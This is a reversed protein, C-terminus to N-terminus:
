CPEVGQRLLLRARLADPLGSPIHPGPSLQRVSVVQQQQQQQPQYYQTTYPNHSSSAQSAQGFSGNMQVPTTRDMGSASPRTAMLAPQPAYARAVGSPRTPAAVPVKPKAKAGRTANGLGAEDYRAVATDRYTPDTDEGRRARKAARIDRPDVDDGQLEEAAPQEGPQLTKPLTRIFEAFDTSVRTNTRVDVHGMDNRIYNRMQGISQALRAISMSGMRSFILLAIYCFESINARGSWSLMDRRQLISSSWEGAPAVRKKTVGISSAFHETIINIFLSLAMEVKKKFFQDPPDHRELFKTIITSSPVLLRTKDHALMIFGALNQFPRGRSRDWDLMRLTEEDDIYRKILENIWTPWPGPIAQLKEAASLSMGM